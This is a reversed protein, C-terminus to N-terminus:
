YAFYVSAVVPDHDSPITGVLKGSKLNLAVSWTSAGAGAPLYIDDIVDNPYPMPTRQYFNMSHVNNYHRQAILRSDAIGNASMVTAPGDLPHYKTNQNSNFDGAYIVQPNGDRAAQAAADRVMISTETERRLDLGKGYGVILHTSVFLVRAHTQRNELLQYAAWRNDSYHKGANDIMWTGGGGVPTWVTPRYLIYVHHRLYGPQSKREAWTVETHALAYTGGLYNRLTDIQRTGPQSGIWDGAEQVAVVDPLSKKILAAAAPGRQSWKPVVGGAERTGDANTQLVNYTMVKIAQVHGTPAGAVRASYPSTTGNTVSAVTFWYMHGAALGVPTFQRTRGSVVYRVRGATMAANTARIIWFGTAAGSNWTLSLGRGTHVALGTPQSPRLGGTMIISSVSYKRGNFAQMRYYYPATTYRLGGVTVRPGSATASRRASSHKHSIINAYYMDSRVTSVYLRYKKARAAHASTVTMSTATAATLALHSPKAPTRTSAADAPAALTTLLAAGTAVAVLVQLKRPRSSLFM